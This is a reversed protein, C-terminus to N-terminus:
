CSKRRADLIAIDDGLKLSARYYACDIDDARITIFGISGTALRKFKIQFM